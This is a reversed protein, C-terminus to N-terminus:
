SKTKTFLISTEDEFLVSWNESAEAKQMLIVSDAQGSDKSLLLYQIDFPELKEEWYSDGFISRYERVFDEGFLHVRGDIFSRQKPYLRWILYDGFIQPHFIHGRLDHKEIYDVASVPTKPDLLSNRNNIQRIWPSSAVLVYFAACIIILNMTSHSGRGHPRPENGASKSNFFGILRALLASDSTEIETWYRTLMPAAVIVFWVTNRLATLAFVTFALFLALDTLDIRRRSYILGLLALGFFGFFMQFGALSDIKPPQWEMVLQQSARDSLVM